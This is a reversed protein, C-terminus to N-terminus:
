VRDLIFYKKGNQVALIHVMEGKKLANYVKVKLKYIKFKENKHSHLSVTESVIDKSTAAHIIPSNETEELDVTTEYDTLHWPIIASVQTIILKSDNVAQIKLPSESIVVGQLLEANRESMGQMMEKISNAM